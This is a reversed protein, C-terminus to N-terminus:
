VSVAIKLKRIAEAKAVAAGVRRRAHFRVLGKAALTYPDRLISMGVRDYIRYGSVFDGLAIPTTGAATDPMDNAEIVPRGLLTSPQGAAVTPQWLYQGQGDKLKRVAALTTSNMMFASRNRYFAPLAYLFDILGDATVTTASGSAVQPVNANFLFGEPKKITDGNVFAEGEIRAFEEALDAAIEAEVSFASDELLQQSVDVYCAAENAPITLQGYAAQTPTRDETENVWYATPAATRRPIIITSSSMSGVRAAQRVPSVEILNKLVEREFQPAVLYGGDTNAGVTLAKREVEPLSDPGRRLFGGFAKEEITPAAKEAAGIPTRKFATELRDLQEAKKELDGEMDKLRKTVVTDHADFASKLEDIPSETGTSKIELETVNM